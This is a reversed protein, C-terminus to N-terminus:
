KKLDKQLLFRQALQYISIYISRCTLLRTGIEKMDCEHDFETEVEKSVWVADSKNTNDDYKTVVNVAIVVTRCLGQHQDSCVLEACYATSPRTTPRRNLQLRM